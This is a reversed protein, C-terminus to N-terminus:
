FNKIYKGIMLLPNLINKDSIERTKRNDENEENKNNKKNKNNDKLRSSLSFKSLM